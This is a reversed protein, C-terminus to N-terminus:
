TLFIMCSEACNRRIGELGFVLWRPLESCDTSVFGFQNVTTMQTCLQVHANIKGLCCVALHVNRQPFVGGSSLLLAELAKLLAESLHGEKSDAMASWDFLESKWSLLGFSSGKHLVMPNWSWQSTQMALLPSRCQQQFLQLTPQGREEMRPWKRAQCTRMKGLVSELTQAAPVLDNEDMARGVMIHKAQRHQLCTVNCRKTLSCTCKQTCFHVKQSCRGAHRCNTSQRHPWDAAVSQTRGVKKSQNSSHLQEKCHSCNGCRHNARKSV